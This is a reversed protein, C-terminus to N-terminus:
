MEYIKIISEPTLTEPIEYLRRLGLSEDSIGLLKRTNPIDYTIIANEKAKPHGDRQDMEDELDAFVIQIKEWDDYFYEQLLPIIKDLFVRELDEFTEVGMFYSHGIQHDRDYLVQIRKNMSDLLAQLDITYEKDAIVSKGSQAIISSEPMLEEFHFRRRLATDLLAISRDATNM